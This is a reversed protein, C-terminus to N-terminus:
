QTREHIAGERLRLSTGKRDRFRAVIESAISLAIEEPSEAGIDLGVFGPVGDGPTQSAKPHWVEVAPRHTDTTRLFCVDGETFHPVRCAVGTM